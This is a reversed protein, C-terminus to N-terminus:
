NSLYLRNKQKNMRELKEKMHFREMEEEAFVYRSNKDALCDYTYIQTYITM